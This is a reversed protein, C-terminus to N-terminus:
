LGAKQWRKQRQAQWRSKAPGSMAGALHRSAKQWQWVDRNLCGFNERSTGV